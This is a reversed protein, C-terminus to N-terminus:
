NSLYACCWCGCEAFYRCRHVVGMQPSLAPSQQPILGWGSPACRGPGSTLLAPDFEAEDSQPAPLLHWKKAEGWIVMQSIGSLRM